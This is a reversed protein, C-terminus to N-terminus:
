ALWYPLKIKLKKYVDDVGPDESELWKKVISLRARIGNANFIAIIM